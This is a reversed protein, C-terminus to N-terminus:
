RASHRNYGSSQEIPCSSSMNALMLISDACHNGVTKGVISTISTKYNIENMKRKKKDFTFISDFEKRKSQDYRLGRLLSVVVRMFDRRTTITKDFLDSLSFLLAVTHPIVV